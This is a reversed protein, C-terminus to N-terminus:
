GTPLKYWGYDKKLETVTKGWCVRDPDNTDNARADFEKILNEYVNFSAQLSTKNLTTTSLRTKLYDFVIILVIVIVIGGVFILQSLTAPSSLAYYAAFIALAAVQIWTSIKTIDLGSM